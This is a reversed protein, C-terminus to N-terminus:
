KKTDYSYFNYLAKNGWDLYNKSIIPRFKHKDLLMAYVIHSMCQATSMLKLRNYYDFFESAKEFCVGGVNFYHSVVKREIINTIYYMDDVAVYSKHQPDVISLNELPFLAVGNQKLVEAEFYGDADKIFFAGKIQKKQLTQFVTDPQSDTPQDLVVIHANQMGLRKFQIDFMEKLYYKEAHKKLITFYVDDFADLNLGMISRVCLMIGSQDLSFVYPMTNSLSEDDAAAPVILSFTDEQRKVSVNQLKSILSSRNFFVGLEEKLYDVVKQEKAYQLIRLLNLIQYVEYYQNYWEYRQFYKHIEMDIKKCIIKLRLNDFPKMYMLQSWLHYSDQRIKVIDMLPSEIFSDLFDILYYNNGNFLINSFTLDGHCLGVPINIYEQMALVAIREGAKKVLRYIQIDDKLFVNSKIKKYVDNFKDVTISTSIKQVPSEKLEKEVFLILAKIFYDIQEFGATEFYEIFNRSYVYEMKIVAHKEDQVVDFIQPIRVHQYEELAAHRQKEAQIILRPVYKPDHSSKCVYLDKDERIIEISCGSHGKVEIEM